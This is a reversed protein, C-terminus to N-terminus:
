EVPAGRGTLLIVRREQGAGRRLIAPRHRVGVSEGPEVRREQRELLASGVHV